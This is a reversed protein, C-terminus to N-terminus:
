GRCATAQLAELAESPFNHRIASQIILDLYARTPPIIEDCIHAETVQYVWAQVAKGDQSLVVPLPDYGRSYRGPHGEKRDILRRTELDVELVLGWVGSAEAPQVNAAGGARARSRYNWVREFGKLCALHHALIRPGPLGKSRAWRALDDLDM